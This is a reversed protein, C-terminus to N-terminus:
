GQRVQRRDRGQEASYRDTGRPLGPRARPASRCRPCPRRCPGPNLRSRARRTGGGRGPADLRDAKPRRRRQNTTEPHTRDGDARSPCQLARLARPCALRPCARRSQPDVAARLRRRPGEGRLRLLEGPPLREILLIQGPPQSSEVGLRFRVHRRFSALLAGPIRVHRSNMGVLPLPAHDRFRERPSSRSPTASSRRATATLPGFEAFLFPGPIGQEILAHLPLALDCLFHFTAVAPASRPSRAFALPPRDPCRPRRPPQGPRRPRRPDLAGRPHPAPRRPHPRGPLRAPRPRKWTAGCPINSEDHTDTM